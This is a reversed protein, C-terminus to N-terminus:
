DHRDERKRLKESRDWSLHSGPQTKSLSDKGGEGSSLDPGNGQSCGRSEKLKTWHPSPHDSQYLFGLVEVENKPSSNRSM